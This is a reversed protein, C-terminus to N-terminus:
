DQLFFILLGSFFNIITYVDCKGGDCRGGNKISRRNGIATYVVPPVAATALFHVLLRHHCPIFSFTEGIAFSAVESCVLMGTM